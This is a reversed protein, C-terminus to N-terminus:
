HFFCSWIKSHIKKPKMAPSPGPRTTLVNINTPRGTRVTSKIWKYTKANIKSELNEKRIDPAYETFHNEVLKSDLSNIPGILRM